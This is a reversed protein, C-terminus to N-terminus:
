PAEQQTLKQLIIDGHCPQPSCFCLLDHGRLPEIFNPNAALQTNLWQAYKTIVTARDGHEGIIFPNGWPSGRGIYVAAARETATAKHKNLVRPMLEENPSTASAGSSPPKASATPTVSHRIM